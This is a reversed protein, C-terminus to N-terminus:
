AKRMFWRIMRHIKPALGGEGLEIFLHHWVGYQFSVTVAAAVFMLAIFLTGGFLYAAYLIASNNLLAAAVMVLFIPVGMVAFLIAVASLALANIFWLAFGLEVLHLWERRALDWARLISEALRSGQHIIANLAFIHTAIVLVTLVLYFIAGVVSVLTLLVSPTSQSLVYPLLLAFRVIWALFGTVFTLGVIQWLHKSASTYALQSLPKKADARGGHGYVIVGQAFCTLLFVGIAVLITVTINLANFAYSSPSSTFDQIWGLVTQFVAPTFLLSGTSRVSQFINAAVDFIGGSIITSALIAWPWMWKEHWAKQFASPLVHRYFSRFLTSQKKRIM